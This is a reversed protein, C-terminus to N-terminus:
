AMDYVGIRKTWIVGAGYKKIFTYELSLDMNEGQTSQFILSEGEIVLKCFKDEPMPVVILLDDDIAFTDTGVLHAQKLSIMPTGLFSGYHGLENYQERWKDSVVATTVQALAAKTGLIAVSQDTSAEVHAIVTLLEDQDFAGAFRYPAPVGGLATEIANYIDFAVHKNYSQSVKNVLKVWDVRGALFRYLEDYVKLGKTRVPITISGADTKQRRLNQTGDAIVAVDFLSPDDVTFVNTDGWGLNRIEVFADFQDSLGEVILFDIAEEIVAFFEPQFRRMTKYDIKDTGAIKILEKRLGESAQDQSFQGTTGKYADVALKVVENM